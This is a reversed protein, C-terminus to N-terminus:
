KFLPRQIWLTLIQEMIDSLAIVENGKQGIKIEFYVEDNDILVDFVRPKVPKPSKLNRITLRQM